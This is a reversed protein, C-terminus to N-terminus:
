HKRKPQADRIMLFIFLGLFLLLALVPIAEIGKLYLFVLSGVGLFALTVLAVVTNSQSSRAGVRKYTWKPEMQWPLPIRRQSQQNQWEVQALYDDVEKFKSSGNKSM